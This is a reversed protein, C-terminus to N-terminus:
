EIVKVVFYTFPKGNEILLQHPVGAPIHIIAGKALPHREGGEVSTGRLEGPKETRANVLKGGTVITAAGDTVVFVDAEKGHVESAGTAERYALMTYHNGYKKLQQAAFQTHKRSLARSLNQLEGPSYVDVDDAACAATALVLALVLTRM